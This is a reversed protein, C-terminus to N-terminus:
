APYQLRGWHCGRDNRHGCRCCFRHPMAIRYAVDVVWAKYPDPIIGSPLPEVPLLENSISEPEPWAQSDEAGDPGQPFEIFHTSDDLEIVRAKM